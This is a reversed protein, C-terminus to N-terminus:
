RHAEGCQRAGRWDGRRTAATSSATWARRLRPRVICMLLIRGHSGDREDGPVEAFILVPEALDSDFHFGFVTQDPDVPGVVFVADHGEGFEADFAKLVEDGDMAVFVFLDTRTGRRISVIARLSECM